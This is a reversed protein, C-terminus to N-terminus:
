PIIRVMKGRMAWFSDAVFVLVEADYVNTELGEGYFFKIRNGTELSGNDYSEKKGLLVALNPVIIINVKDKSPKFKFACTSFGNGTAQKDVHTVVGKRFCQEVLNPELWQHSNYLTTM